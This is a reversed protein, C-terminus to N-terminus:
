SFSLGYWTNYCFFTHMSIMCSAGDKHIIFYISFCIILYIHTISMIHLYPLLYRYIIIRLFWGFYRISPFDRCHRDIKNYYSPSQEQYAAIEYEPHVLIRVLSNLNIVPYELLTVFLCFRHTISSYM